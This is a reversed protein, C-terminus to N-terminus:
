PPNEERKPPERKDRNKPEMGVRHPEEMKDYVGSAEGNNIQECELRQRIRCKLSILSGTLHGMARM